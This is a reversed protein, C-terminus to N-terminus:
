PTWVACRADDSFTGHNLCNACRFIPEPNGSDGNVIEGQSDVVVGSQASVCFHRSSEGSFVLRINQQIDIRNGGDIALGAESANNVAVTLEPEDSINSFTVTANGPTIQIGRKVDSIELNAGVHVSGGHILIAVGPTNSVGTATLGCIHLGDTQSFQLEPDDERVIYEIEHCYPSNAHANPILYELIGSASKNIMKEIIPENLILPSDIGNTFGGARKGAVVGALRSRNLNINHIGYFGKRPTYIPATFGDLTLNAFIINTGVFVFGNPQGTAGGNYTITKGQGDIIVNDSHVIIPLQPGSITCDDRIIYKTPPRQEALTQKLTSCDDIYRVIYKEKSKRDGDSFTTSIMERTETCNTIAIATLAIVLLTILYKM